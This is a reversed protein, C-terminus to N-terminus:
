PFLETLALFQVWRLNPLWGAYSPKGGYPVPTQPVFGLMIATQSETLYMPYPREQREGRRQPHVEDPQFGSYIAITPHRSASVLRRYEKVSGYQSLLKRLIM